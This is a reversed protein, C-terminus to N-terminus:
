ENKKVKERLERQKREKAVLIAGVIVWLINSVLEPKSTFYRM